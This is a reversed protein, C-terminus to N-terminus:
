RLVKMYNSILFEYIKNNIEKKPFMRKVTELTEGKTIYSTNGLKEKLSFDLCEVSKPNLDLINAAVSDVAVPDESAMVLGLKKTNVGRVIIGDVIVLDTKILKNIGIIAKNLHKHYVYKKQYSNCGFINKLACTLKVDKMYKIKPVNILVDSNQIINPIFYTLKKGLVEVIKKETKQESLNVLTVNKEISLKEYGLIKFAYKCKMASADSEIIYIYPDSTIRERIVDILIGVFNPDTTYGTSYDWYYNLNPKILIKDVDNKFNFNILDLSKEVTERINLYDTQKALCLSVLSM